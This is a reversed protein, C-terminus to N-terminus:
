NIVVRKTLVDNGAKLRLTYVGTALEATPVTFRAGAAPLAASQTRVVQGLANLLEAQVSTANAVAPVLVTFNEHAPNPYVSVQAALAENRTATVVLLSVNDLGIDTSGNDGTARFRIVSTATGGVLPITYSTWTAALVQTFLPAGFTTGGDTSLLVELKDTGSTNIYDFKLGTGASGASSLNAYLDFTAFETVPSVNYSHYRASFSSSAGNANSGAPTYGGNTSGGTWGAAAGDDYRRFSADPDAGATMKWNLSPVDRLACNTVWTNEFTQTYPVTAYTPTVCLFATTFTVPVTTTSSGNGGSCNTTLTVTYTTGPTLGTLTIPSATANAQTTAPSTTVTYNAVGSTSPTFTVQATTTTITAAPVAVATPPTCTVYSVNVNDLGIDSLGDDGTARFRIVSTATAGPLPVTYTTWTAALVQTFLPAGFTGGGDTSLLVELKDSGSTNIYDFTLTPTGTTGSANVSLDLLGQSGVPANYAHFRASFLSTAGGANSGAPTYGGNITSWGGATGDDFRRWANNGALPSARWNADPVDRTGCANAWTAEFTQTYPLAAYPAATCATTFTTTVSASTTSGACNTTVTVTYPTNPTLSTLSVPSATPTPTVTTATGGTPTYTVTYSAGGAPPTFTVSATTATINAVALNAVISCTVYNLNVNDLGIDSSGNDGTARFRIVSTATAGPLPVTYTTWTAALVQTFLPAGFTVGGDTSLLVELKDSGSTNIYDFTLTPTGTTGGANAYLDFTAFETVPFVNGSHYRASFLSSAGGANSGAPTYGYNTSGNLWGAAAGDDYRRFSADPDAGATMKWNLSPVDRLACNSVWTNEFTQTYPVTAYTPTVCTFGSVFSVTATNAVGGVSCNSVVNVTYATGPTLGTLVLPAATTASTVTYTTTAPTTTVTYNTVGSAPATFTLSASTTTIASIALATPPSCAPTTVFRTETPLSAGAAYNAVMSVTYATSAALGTLAFPSATVTFPSGPVAPTVTATYSTPATTAAAPAVFDITATSVAVASATPRIAPLQPTAAPTYTFTLGAAPVLTPGVAVTSSSTLAAGTNTQDWGAASRRNNYDTNAAGRLGVQPNTGTALGTFTGYVIRIVNSTEALRIQYNETGGVGGYASWNAYQVVFERNPATGVTATSIAAGANSRGGGDLGFAAIAGAYGTGSSIPTYGTASPATAGFTVYGNPTINLATYATGAYTFSFPLTVTPYVEDDDTTSGSITTGGTIPAYTGMTQTFGYADARAQAHGLLPLLWVLLALTGAWGKNFSSTCPLHNIM